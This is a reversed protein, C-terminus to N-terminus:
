KTLIMQKTAILKGDVILSYQYAGSAHTSADVIVNGKIGFIKIAKITKGNKDTIIIQATTFKQPLSYNIKTTHNFPNPTNQDLVADSLVVATSNQNQSIIMAKLEDIQKQLDENKASLEQVAKVLPVVFDSYRLGYLGDQTHPKDVGSFHYNLRDAAKEVDQAIFGNYIITSAEKTTNKTEANVKDEFAGQKKGKDYYANLGDVDVNYTIPQLNNIFALGQVDQKINKKFRGDSFTTWEVQGGISTVLTNGIRVKNSADVFAAYGLATANSIGDATIDTTAGIMTNGSGNFSSGASNGLATSNYGTTNSSLSNYGSATNYYGTTNMFLSSDGTATNRYGTSNSFLASMGTATNGYGTTNFGLSFYGVATNNNAITNSSLSQEGIATNNGGTTNKYLAYPSVATNNSGTKNNQLAATGIGTNQAGTTNSDLANSGVATNAYGVTNAFLAKSGLATNWAGEFSNVAGYGNFYMASDGIAVLNNSTTNSYLASTGVAVNSYGTTNFYLSAFGNATNSNGKTNRTLSADGYASNQSGTTNTNLTYYGTATNDNGKSNSQLAGNGISTNNIGTTNYSLTFSGFASNNNGTSNSGLANYGGATNNNGATNYKLADYGYASNYLGTNSVLAEYGFATNAKAIDYDIYGAKTNNVKFMLPQADTTGIFNTAPNTGANGTLSWGKSKPTVATWATGSYYYFGPTSNTQYILLGTAPSVIANRQVLTMRPTLMGKTTSAIELLSSANPTTTGIGAAGTSPFINQAKTNSCFFIGIIISLFTFSTKM